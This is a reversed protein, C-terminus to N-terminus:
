LYKELLHTDPYQFPHNYSPYRKMESFTYKPGYKGADYNRTLRVIDANKPNALLEFQEVTLHFWRMIFVRLTMGHFSVGVNRPYDEKEFDRWLTNNFDSVRDYVDACSEGDKIRHYFHGYSDRKEEFDPEMDTFSTGWEQERLRADETAKVVNLNKAIELFTDRTRWYPSYYFRIPANQIVDKIRLGAEFAQDRGLQTLRVAYDPVSKYIKRTKDANGESQGHRVLFINDPMM